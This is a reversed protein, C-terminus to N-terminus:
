RINVMVCLFRFNFMNGNSENTNAIGNIVVNKNKNNNKFNYKVIM